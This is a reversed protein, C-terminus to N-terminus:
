VEGTKASQPPIPIGDADLPANDWADAHAVTDLAEQAIGPASIYPPNKMAAIKCLARRFVDLRDLLARHVSPDVPRM